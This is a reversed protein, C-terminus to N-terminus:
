LRSPNWNVICRVQQWEYATRWCTSIRRCRSQCTTWIRMGVANRRLFQRDIQKRELSESHRKGESNSRRSHRLPIDRQAIFDAPHCQSRASSAANRSGSGTSCGARNRQAQTGCMRFGLFWDTFVLSNSSNVSEDKQRLESSLSSSGYYDMSAIVPGILQRTRRWPPCTQAHRRITWSRREPKSPRRHVTM